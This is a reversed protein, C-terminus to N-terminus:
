VSVAEDLWGAQYWAADRPAGLDAPRDAMEWWAPASDFPKMESDSLSVRVDTFLDAPWNLDPVRV